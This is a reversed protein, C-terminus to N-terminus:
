RALFRLPGTNASDARSQQHSGEGRLFEGWYIERGTFNHLINHLNCFGFQTFSDFIFQVLKYFTPLTFPLFHFYLFLLFCLTFDSSPWTVSNHLLEQPHIASLQLPASFVWFVDIDRKLFQLTYFQLTYHIFSYLKFSYHIFYLLHRSCGSCM